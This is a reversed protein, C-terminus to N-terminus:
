VEAKELMLGLQVAEGFLQRAAMKMCSETKLLNLAKSHFEHDCCEDVEGWNVALWYGGIEGPASCVLHGKRRLAHVALRVQREDIKRMMRASTLYVLDHRSMTNPKGVADKELTELTAEELGDPLHKMEDYKKNAM